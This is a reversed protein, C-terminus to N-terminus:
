PHIVHADGGKADALSQLRPEDVGTARNLMMLTMPGGIGDARLGQTLQFARLAQSLDASGAALGFRAALWTAAVTQDGPNIAGTFGAPARWLTVFQGQFYAALAFSDVVHTVGDLELAMTHNGVGTILAFHAHGARDQLRLVAPRNLARLDALGGTSRHCQLDGSSKASCPEAEVLKGWRQALVRLVSTEDVPLRDILNAVEEIPPVTERAALSANQAPSVASKQSAAPFFIKGASGNIALELMMFSMLFLAALIAFRKQTDSFKGVGTPAFIEQAARSVIARDITNRGLAYAGLLARDCLLNIRRPIGRSLSFIRRVAASSFPSSGNGGASMLRHTIYAQTELASLAGLHYRAIVRQALQELEPQAIMNRLEPQGILIIQLLKCSNTELNTLLRLQELVDASLNQAEDIILVSNRGQAHAALLFTNLADVDDKPSTSTSSDLHFEDCISRLLEAVSLKPNFIYAIHCNEPVQELLCRCITTKGAGIEGTLLVFGGGSRIGYLLHALAERHRESMFLFRPDPAISFPAQQLNFFHTYM